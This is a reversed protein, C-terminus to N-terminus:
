APRRISFTAQGRLSRNAQPLIQQKRRLKKTDCRGFCTEGGSPPMVIRRTNPSLSRCVDMAPLRM